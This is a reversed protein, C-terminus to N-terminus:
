RSLLNLLNKSIHKRLWNDESSSVPKIKYITISSGVTGLGLEGYAGSFKRNCLSGFQLSRLSTIQVGWNWGKAIDNPSKTVATGVGPTVLGGGTYKYFIDAKSDYIYGYTIGFLMGASINIDYYDLGDWDVYNMPDNGVYVFLNGQGGEFFIPDRATWRDSTTDYDRMGFRVLGSDKDEIGGAFGQPLYFDPNSDSILKGYSDYELSKITQGSADTIVKPTGLQDTAVYYWNENQWHM